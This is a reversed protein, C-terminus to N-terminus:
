YFPFFFGTTFLPSLCLYGKEQASDGKLKHNKTQAQIGSAKFEVTTFPDGEQHADTTIILKAIHDSLVTCLEILSSKAVWNCQEKM